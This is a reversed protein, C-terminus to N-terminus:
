NSIPKRAAVVRSGGIPWRFGRLTLSVEADLLLHLSANLVPHVNFEHYSRERRNVPRKQMLLRSGLMLPLSLAAYSTSFVVEFGAYRLKREVEGRCYRRVHHSVDDTRSWLAPHQPVAVLFGGGEALADYVQRIVTEDEVIHELVDFAGVLDFAARAPIKRVDMQVFESRDALRRRAHRLGASHIESGVLNQWMRSSAHSCARFGDWM